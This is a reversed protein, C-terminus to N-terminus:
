RCTQSSETMLRQLETIAQLDLANIPPNSFTITWQGSKSRDITLLEYNPVVEESSPFPCDLLTMEAAGRALHPHRSFRMERAM